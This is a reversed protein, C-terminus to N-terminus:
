WWHLRHPVREWPTAATAGRDAEDHQRQRWPSSSDVGEMTGLPLLRYREAPFIAHPAACRARALRPRGFRRALTEAVQDLAAWRRARTQWFVAQEPALPVLEGVEVLARETASEAGALLLTGCLDSLRQALQRADATPTRLRVQGASVGGEQWTLALRLRATQRGDAALQRAIREAVPVLAALVRQPPAGHAAATVVLRCRLAAPRPTPVLPRPDRGAAIAALATGVREGFQRRLAAEGLRAVQGLTRLGYGELRAVTERTVTGAPHLEPLWQVPLARVVGPAAETALVRIAPEEIEGSRARSLPSQPRLGKPAPEGAPEGAARGERQRTVLANGAASGGPAIAALQACLVNTGIGIRVRVQPREDGRATLRRLLLASVAAAEGDTCSGLDLLARTASVHELRPTVRYCAALWAEDDEGAEPAWGRLEVYAVHPAPTPMAASTGSTSLSMAPVSM